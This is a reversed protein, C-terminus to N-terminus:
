LACYEPTAYRGAEKEVHEAEEEVHEALTNNLYLYLYLQPFQSGLLESLFANKAAGM